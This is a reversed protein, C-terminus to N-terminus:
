GNQATQCGAQHDQRQSHRVRSLASVGGASVASVRCHAHTRAHTYTRTHTCTHKRTHTHAHTHADGVQSLLSQALSIDGTTNDNLIYDDCLYSSAPPIATNCYVVLHLACRLCQASCCAVASVAVHLLQHLQLVTSTNVPLGHVCPSAVSHSCRGTSM